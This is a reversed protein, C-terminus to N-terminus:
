AVHVVALATMVAEKALYESHVPQEEVGLAQDERVGRRARREKKACRERLFESSQKIAKM